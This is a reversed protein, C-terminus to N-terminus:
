GGSESGKAMVLVHHCHARTEIARRFGLGRLIDHASAVSVGNESHERGSAHHVRAVIEFGERTFDAVVVVGGVKVCRAMECLVPEPDHLHHLVDMMAACGFHGDEHSLRGADGVVFQIGGCVGADGALLVALAREQPDVDVSVVELGLRALEIALLGKGTGVDLAPGSLPGAVQAVFCASALRDFGARRYEDNRAYFAQRRGALEAGSVSAVDLPTRPPRDPACRSRRPVAM